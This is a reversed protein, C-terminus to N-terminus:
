QAYAPAWRQDIAHEAATRSQEALPVLDGMGPTVAALTLETTIFTPELGIMSLGHPLWQQAHDWGDRPTGPGYGGGRAALVLLERDGLLPTRTDADISLGPAILYDVWAKVSSPAGYNYLPLGVIITTAERVERVVLESLTWAAAQEPRREAAPTMGALASASDLHPLPNAGLDRYTVAGDPHAAKWADAARATLARTVSTPGTISSDIHLLHAM